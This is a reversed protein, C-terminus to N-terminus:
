AAHTLKAALPMNSSPLKSTPTCLAQVIGRRRYLYRGPPMVSAMTPAKARTTIMMVMYEHAKHSPWDEEVSCRQRLLGAIRLSICSQTCCDKILPWLKRPLSLCSCGRRRLALSEAPWWRVRHDRTRFRLQPPTADSADAKAFLPALALLGANRAPIGQNYIIKWM